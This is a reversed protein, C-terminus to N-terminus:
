DLRAANLRAAVRFKVRFKARAYAGPANVIGWGGEILRGNAASKDAAVTREVTRSNNRPEAEVADRLPCNGFVLTEIDFPERCAATCSLDPQM